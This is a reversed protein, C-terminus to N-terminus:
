QPDFLTPQKALMPKNGEFQWNVAYVGTKPRHILGNKVMTTLVAGLHKDANCYYWHACHKLLNGKTMEKHRYLLRMIHKQKESLAM